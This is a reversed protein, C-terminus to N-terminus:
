REAAVDVDADDPQIGVGDRTEFTIREYRFYLGSFM